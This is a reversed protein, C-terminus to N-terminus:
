SWYTLSKNDKTFGLFGGLTVRDSVGLPGEVRHWIEGAAFILMDGPLLKVSFKEMVGEVATDIIRGDELKIQTEGANQQGPKWELNYITLEGGRQPTQLQIFYSMQNQTVVKQMLDAYLTTNLEEFMNGCHIPIGWLNPYFVRITAPTYCGVGKPGPLIIVERGGSMRQFISTIREEIAVGFLEPFQKRWQEWERFNNEFPNESSRNKDAEFFARPFTYGSAVKTRVDEKQKEIHHLITRVENQSLVQRLILGDFKRNQIDQIGNPYSEIDATDIHRFDYFYGYENVPIKPMLKIQHTIFTRVIIPVEVPYLL